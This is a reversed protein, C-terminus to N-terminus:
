GKSEREKIEAEILEREAIEAERKIIVDRVIFLFLFIGLANVLVMPFVLNKFFLKQIEWFTKDTYLPSTLPVIVHLHIIEWVATIVVIKWIEKPTIRKININKYKSLWAGIFGAGITALGCGLASWYGL